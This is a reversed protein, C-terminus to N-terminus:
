PAAAFLMVRWAAAGFQENSQSSLLDLLCVALAFFSLAAKGLKNISLKSL